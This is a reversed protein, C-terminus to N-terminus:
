QIKAVNRSQGTIVLDAMILIAKAVVMRKGDSIQRVFTTGEVTRLDAYRPPVRNSVPPCCLARIICGTDSPSFQVAEGRPCVLRVSASPPSPVSSGLRFHCLVLPGVPWPQDASIRTM